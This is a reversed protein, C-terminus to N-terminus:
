TAVTKIHSKNDRSLCRSCFSVTCNGSKDSSGKTKGGHNKNNIEESLQFYKTEALVATFITKRDDEVQLM